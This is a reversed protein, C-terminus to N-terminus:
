NQFKIKVVEEICKSHGYHLFVILYKSTFGRAVNNVMCIKKEISQFFNKILCVILNQLCEDWNTRRKFFHFYLLIWFHLEYKYIKNIVFFYKLLQYM